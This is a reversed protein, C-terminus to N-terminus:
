RVRRRRKVVVAGLGGAVFGTAIEATAVRSGLYSKVAAAIRWHL